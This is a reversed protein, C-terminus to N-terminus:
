KFFDPPINTIGFATLHTCINTGEPVLNPNERKLEAGIDAWTGVRMIEAQADTLGNARAHGVPDGKFAIREAPSRSLKSIYTLFPTSMLHLGNETETRNKAPLFANM